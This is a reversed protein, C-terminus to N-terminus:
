PVDAIGTSTSCSIGRGARRGGFPVDDRAGAADEGTVLRRLVDDDGVGRRLIGAALDELPIQALPVSGEGGVLDALSM